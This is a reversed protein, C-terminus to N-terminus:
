VDFSPTVAVIFQIFTSSFPWRIQYLQAFGCFIQGSIVTKPKPNSVLVNLILLPMSLRVLTVEKLSIQDYKLRLDEM